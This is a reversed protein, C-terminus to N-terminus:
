AKARTATGWDKDYAQFLYRPAAFEAYLSIAFGAPNIRRLGRLRDEVLCNVDM